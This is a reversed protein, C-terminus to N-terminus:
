KKIVDIDSHLYKEQEYDAFIERFSESLTVFEPPIDVDNNDINLVIDFFEDRNLTTM